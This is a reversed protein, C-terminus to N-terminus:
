CLLVCLKMWQFIYIYKYVHYEFGLPQKVFRNTLMTERQEKKIHTPLASGVHMYVTHMYGMRLTEM